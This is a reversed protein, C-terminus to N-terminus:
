SEVSVGDIYLPSLGLATNPHELIEVEFTMSVVANEESVVPLDGSASMEVYPMEWDNNPGENNDPLISLRGFRSVTTGGKIQIRTNAATDYDVHITQATGLWKFRAKSADLEYDTNEVFTTTDTEDQFVANSINRVGTPNSTIRGLRYLRGPEVAIAEDTVSGSAQTITQLDGGVFRALNEMSFNECIITGKRIIKLVKSLIKTSVSVQSSYKELKETEVGFTTSSCEGMQLDGQYANSLYEDFAVQGRPVMLQTSTLSIGM